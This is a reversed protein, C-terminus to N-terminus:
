HSAALQNLESDLLKNVREFEEPIRNARYFARKWLEAFYQHSTTKSQPEDLAKQLDRTKTFEESGFSMLTRRGKLVALGYTVSAYASYQSPDEFRALRFVYEGKFPAMLVDEDATAEWSLTDQRTLQLVKAVTSAADTDHIEYDTM